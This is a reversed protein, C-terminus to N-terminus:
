LDEEGDDCIPCFGGDTLKTGCKTCIPRVELPTESMRLNHEKIANVTKKLICYIQAASDYKYFNYYYGLSRLDNIMEQKSHGPALLSNLEDDTLFYTSKPFEM